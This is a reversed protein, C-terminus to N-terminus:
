IVSIEYNLKTVFQHNINGFKMMAELFKVLLSINIRIVYKKYDQIIFIVVVFAIKQCKPGKM